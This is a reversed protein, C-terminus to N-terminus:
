GVRGKRCPWAKASSSAEPSAAVRVWASQSPKSTSRSTVLAAVFAKGSPQAIGSQAVMGEDLIDIVAGRAAEVASQELLERVAFPDVACSLRRIKRDLRRRCFNAQMRARGCPKGRCGIRGRDARGWITRRDRAPARRRGSHGCGARREAADLEENEVVPPEVREIGSRAVIEEFDEFFAVAAARGDDGALDRHVLPM